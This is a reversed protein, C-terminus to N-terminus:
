AAEGATPVACGLSRALALGRTTLWWWSTEGASAASGRGTGEAGAVLGMRHLEAMAAASAQLRRRNVCLRLPQGWGKASPRSDLGALTAVIRAQRASLRWPGVPPAGAVAGWDRPVQRPCTGDRDAQGDM